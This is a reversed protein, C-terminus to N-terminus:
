PRPVDPSVSPHDDTGGEADPVKGILESMRGNVQAHVADVKTEVNDVQDKVEATKMLQMLGTFGTGLMILIPSVLGDVPRGLGALVAVTILMLAMIGGILYAIRAQM